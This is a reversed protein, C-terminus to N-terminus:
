GRFTFVKAVEEEIGIPILDYRPKDKDFKMGEMDVRWIM